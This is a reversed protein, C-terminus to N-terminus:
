EIGNKLKLQSLYTLYQEETLEHHEKFPIKNCLPCPEEGGGYLGNKGDCKDLDWLFGNICRADIYPAGFYKFEPCQKNKTKDEM